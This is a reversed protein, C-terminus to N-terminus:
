PDRIPRSAEFTELHDEFAAIMAKPARAKKLQRIAGSQVQVAQEFDGTEALAAALTDLTGPDDTGSAALAARAIEVALAGNRLDERPLTALAWAYGNLISAFYPCVSAAHAFV